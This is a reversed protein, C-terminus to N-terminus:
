SLRQTKLCLLVIVLTYYFINMCWHEMRKQLQVCLYMLTVVRLSLVGFDWAVECIIVFTTVLPREVICPVSLWPERAWMRLYLSLNVSLIIIELTTAQLYSNRIDASLVKTQHLVAYTLASRVSERYVVRSYNSDKLDPTLHRNNVWQAKRTFNM